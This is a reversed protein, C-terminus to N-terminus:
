LVIKFTRKWRTKTFFHLLVDTIQEMRDTMSTRQYEDRDTVYSWYVVLPRGVILSRQVFGWYRSDLSNDRNDGLAFYSNEPVKVPGYRSQTYEPDLFQTYREALPKGNVFVTRGIIEIEEGPLGIVRKVYDVRPNRPYKFVIIDGRRIERTPLLTPFPAPNNGLIFKNVLLHDGILLNSEMSGTPIKYAQLVFTTIFLFVIGTVLISESYERLVAFVSTESAIVPFPLAGAVSATDTAAETNDAPTQYSASIENM